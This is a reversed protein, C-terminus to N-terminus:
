EKYLIVKEDSLFKVFKNATLTKAEKKSTGHGTIKINPLNLPILKKPTQTPCNLTLVCEFVQSPRNGVTRVNYDPRIKNKMLFNYLWAKVEMNQIFIEDNSFVSESKSINLKSCKHGRTWSIDHGPEFNSTGLSTNSPLRVNCNSSIDVKNQCNQCTYLNFNNLPVSQSYRSAISPSIMSRTHNTIASNRDTQADSLLSRQSASNELLSNQNYHGLNINLAQYQNNGYQDTAFNDCKNFQMNSDPVTTSNQIPLNQLNTQYVQNFSANEQIQNFNNCKDQQQYYGSDNNQSALQVLQVLKNFQDLTLNFPVQHQSISSSNSKVSLNGLKSSINDLIQNQPLNQSIEQNYQNISYNLPYYTPYSNLCNDNLINPDLNNQVKFSNIKGNTLSKCSTQGSQNFLLPNETDIKLLGNNQSFTQLNQTQFPKSNHFKKVKKTKQTLLKLHHNTNSNPTFNNSM